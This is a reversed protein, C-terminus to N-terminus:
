ELWGMTMIYLTYLLSDCCFYKKMNQKFELTEVLRAMKLYYMYTQFVQSSILLM